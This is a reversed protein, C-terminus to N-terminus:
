TRIAYAYAKAKRFWVFRVRVYPGKSYILSWVVCRHDTGSYPVLFVIV